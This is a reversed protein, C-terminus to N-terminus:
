VGCYGWIRAFDSTGKMTIVRIPGASLDSNRQFAGSPEVASTQFVSFPYPQPVKKVDLCCTSAWFTARRLWYSSSTLAVVSPGSRIFQPVSKHAGGSSRTSATVAALWMPTARNRSEVGASKKRRTASLRFMGSSEPSILVDQGFMTEEKGWRQGSIIGAVLVSSVASFNEAM